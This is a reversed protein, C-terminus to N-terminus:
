PRQPRVPPPPPYRVYAQSPDRQGGPKGGDFKGDPGVSYLVFGNEERRYKLPQDSLPDLPPHALAQEMRHPFEGHHARYALLSAAAILLREKAQVLPAHAASRGGFAPFLVPRCIHVPNLSPTSAMAELEERIALRARYPRAEAAIFRRMMTLYDAECADMLKKWFEKEQATLPKAQGTAANSSLRLLLVPGGERLMEFTAAIMAIEGELRMRLRPRFWLVAEGVKTAVTADTAALCLLDEMGALTIADCATGVLFGIIVPDGAAHEAIRFGRTLNAIAEEYRGERAMLTSEARLLRTATRMGPYEPLRLAPGLSWDRRFVCRARDTAQYVLDMVDRREALLRRVRDIEEPTHLYRTGLSSAISEAEPDLPKERLLATLRVYIPAADEEPPVAPWRLERATPPIGERRALARQRDLERRGNEVQRFYAVFEGSAVIDRFHNLLSVPDDPDFRKPPAGQAASALIAVGTAILLPLRLRLLM